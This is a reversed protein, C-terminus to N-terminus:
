TDHRGATKRRPPYRRWALLVLAAFVTDALGVAVAGATKLLDRRSITLRSKM